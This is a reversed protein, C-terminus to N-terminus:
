TRQAPRVVIRNLVQMGGNILLNLALFSLLLILFGEIARGTQTIATDSVSYLDAFGVAIALTSNKALNLYQSSLAPLIAPLAQPLVVKRMGLTEGIGLSRFAEWQGKPVSDLGGRVVEAIAAGTFVSLGVLVASFEVSLNLGLIAVGQNSLSILSGVPAMPESPLGLFAVFYWFLLQLLLPIQRILGVYLASLQRLLPNLSRRAAGAGVGLVTALLISCAIVQLSNLWSVLLAWATSDGPQYPLTHEGLAFGAPQWLWKFSLGLETRILNVALNNVLIGVLTLVLGALVIELWRLRKRKM